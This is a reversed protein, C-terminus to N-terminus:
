PRSRLGAAAPDLLLEREQTQSLGQQSRDEVLPLEGLLVRHQELFRRRWRRERREAYSILRDTPLAELLVDPHVLCALAGVHGFGLSTLLAARLGGAGLELPEDSFCLPLRRALSADPEDLNRMPPVVGELMAQILGIAQWAAAGGKAHGTLAKQAIVPLPWRPDRGLATAITAHLEVENPDNAETSTGHLSVAGVDDPGLGYAALAQGLPSRAGGAALSLLGRGPSPISAQLGDGRTWAGALLGYIPLGLELARDARCLLLSGGGQAEVFGGRRADCPRSAQDPELGRAELEADPMTAGMDAFGRMGEPGIDDFAGAVVLDAKGALILDAGMELSVAATACAGVPHMMPGYGGHLASAAWAPAVNILCEQLADTQRERDLVPDVYLRRLARMGGIGGGQTSGVRSPHFARALEAPDSGASRFAEATAVLTYAAVPDIQDARDPDLGLRVSDWGAPLQGGVSRSLPARRPIRVRSGARRLVTWGGQGSPFVETGEPDAAAISMALAEDPIDFSIDQELRLETLTEMAAPDFLDLTRLGVRELLSYREAIGATDVPEGSATDTWRGGAFRVLGCLWALELAAEPQLRGHREMSWRVRENGFPGVEGFGVIAVAQSPDLRCGTRPRSGPLRPFAFLARPLPPEGEQPPREEPRAGGRLSREIVERLGSAAAGFGGTLDATVPAEAAERRVEPHCQELLLDAMAETCFTRIGLETEVTRWIPDLGSMLGTGRVWGIRAGVMTVRNGWRDQESHWRHMMAELGAKSEAYLGDRGVQGHNPSLPLVVHVRPASRGARGTERALAGVLREVGVLNVQLTHGIRESIDTPDGEAPAAAFPFCLTPLWPEKTRVTRAGRRESASSVLWRCLAEVDERSGQDFPVLHLSAGAAAHQRYLARFRAVSARPTERRHFTTAVVQAGGELLRVVLAEAISGRGAGTVLAIEGAYPMPPGGRRLVRLCRELAVSAPRHGGARARELLGALMGGLEVSATRLLRQELAPNEEGRVLGLYWRLADARAWSAAATLAVHRRSMVVGSPHEGVAGFSQPVRSASADPTTRPAPRDVLAPDLGAAELAVRAVQAWRGRAERGVQEVAQPNAGETSGAPAARRPVQVGALVGYRAVAQEIVVEAQADAQERRVLALVSLVGSRRAPGLSWGQELQREAEARPLGLEALTRDRQAELYPGPHRYRGAGAQVATLLKPLPLEHAGDIPSAGLERGLEALVQNRRASNGGLLRDLSASGELDELPRRMSLALCLKVAQSVTLAADELEPGSPEAAPAIREVALARPAQEPAEKVEPEPGLGLLTARDREAHVLELGGDRDDQSRAMMGVLVPASGPGLELLRGAHELLLEQTEIWRVPSAFQWALLEVLIARAHRVPDELAEGLAESGTADVIAQVFDRELVFPRAVLNPLYRGLLLELDLEAPLCRDLVQRFAPVGERLLPSHFPVDLGALAVWAGEGRQALEAELAAVAQVHGAVAYQRHRINHNVLYLPLGTRQAIEAVLAMAGGEDLGVRHPRLVGMAYPSRGEEDRPVFRQMTTGRHYVLEVVAELELVGGMAALAAYEGISHGCLFGPRPLVGLERLEAVGACALVALAVQTIQTAHLVGAPHRLVEGAVDLELPNDRVAELLSFGLQQRTYREARDWVERAATSRAYSEMGMGRHQCGQGPFVVATVPARLLASLALVPRDDHDLRLEVLEDGELRAVVEARLRLRAGTPVTDLYRTRAWTLRRGGACLRACAASAMWQGHVIPAELGALVALAPDRHIPNLDGSAAAFATMDVPAVLEEDLLPRPRELAVAGSIPTPQERPPELGPPLPGHAQRLLFRQVLRACTREGERLELVLQVTRGGPGDSAQRAVLVAELAGGASPALREVSSEVHLLSAPDAVMDAALLAGMMAGLGRSFHLQLPEQTADDRVVRRWAAIRQHCLQEDRVLLTRYLSRLREQLGAGERLPVRHGPRLDFPLVLRQESGDPLPHRLVLDVGTTGRPELRARDGAIGVLVPLPNSRERRGLLCSPSALAMVVPDTGVGDPAAPAAALSPALFRALLAAVPEDPRDLDVLGAPGPLVLVAEADFRDDHAQWLSDACFWRHADGDIVPVFPVPKGPGRCVEELFFWADEPLVPTETLAPLVQSLVVLLGRPEDLDESTPLEQQWGCRRLARHVMLGFRQRHSPDLWPGDDELRHRGLAMLTVLRELLELYSMAELDGFWPKCTRALAAALEDRRAAAAQHDGTVEALLAATRSAHNDLYYVDAGLGSRGSRIGGRLVGRALLTQAGPAAVLAHRVAPATGAEAAAIAITGIFVADVPMPARGFAASWSGDLLQEAREPTAVGGGVALLLGPRSRIAGYWRLLLEELEVMGHHGGARGGELQLILTEGPSLDAIALAREVQDHSGIKLSNLRIGLERLEDLLAACEEDPPLGASITVGLIPHGEQRLRQVLRQEGLHLDWLHRDLVLANFLYGEGPDLQARLEEARRRLIAETPQGGGALEALFGANAAAAVIGADSTTPTMGPLLIPPAGTARTFANDLVRRGDSRQVVVPALAAWPAPPEIRARDRTRLLAAGDEVAGAIVQVGYGELNAVCLAAVGGGPGLDLLHTPELGRAAAMTAQWDVRELCQSRILDPEGQWVAGDEYRLLPVALSGPDVAFGLRTADARLAELAPTMAPSHFPAGVPLGEQAFSPPPPADGAEFAAQQQALERELRRVVRALADPEGSIVQRRPANVLAMAVGPEESVAREVQDAELGRLAIMPARGNRQRGWAVQMRVGQWAMYRAMTAARLRFGAPGLGEAALAAAMIGQSHGTVAVAWRAIDEPPLGVSRLSALRAAQTVFIAPQSIPSGVLAQESPRSSPDQLWRLLDLGEPHLGLLDLGRGLEDLMGAACHEIVSRAASDGQYLAELGDWWRQAQGAFSLVLRAEGDYLLSALAPPEALGRRGLVLQSSPLLPSSPLPEALPPLQIPSRVPLQPHPRM